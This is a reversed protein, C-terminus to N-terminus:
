WSGSAGGGGSYGGSLGRAPRRDRARSGGGGGRSKLASMILFYALALLMWTLAAVVIIAVGTLFLQLKYRPAWISALIFFLGIGMAVLFPKPDLLSYATLPRVTDEIFDGPPHSFPGTQAMVALEEVGALIGGSYDGRKFAPVLTGQMIRNAKSDGTRGWDAGLEIRAKRDQVAVLLLIGQNAGRQLGLTGVQWRDFWHRALADVDNDGGYDRARQITVVVLPTNYRELSERQLSAIRAADTSGLLGATDLTYEEPVPPPPIERAQGASGWLVLLLAVWRGGMRM